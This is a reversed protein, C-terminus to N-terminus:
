KAVAVAIDYIEIDSSRVSGSSSDRFSEDLNYVIELVEIDTLVKEGEATGGTDIRLLCSFSIDQSFVHQAFVLL